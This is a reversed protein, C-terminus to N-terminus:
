KRTLWVVWVQKGTTIANIQITNDATITILATRDQLIPGGGAGATDPQLELAWCVQDTKKIGTITINTNAAAGGAFGSKLQLGKGGLFQGFKRLQKSAM